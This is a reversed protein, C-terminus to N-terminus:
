RFPDGGIEPAARRGFQYGFGWSVETTTIPDDFMLDSEPVPIHTEGCGGLFRHRFGFRMTLPLSKLDAVLISIDIVLGLKSAEPSSWLDGSRVVHRKAGIHFFCLGGGFELFTTRSHCILHRFGIEFAHVRNTSLLEVTKWASYGNTYDYESDWTKSTLCDFEFTLKVKDSVPQFLYFGIGHPHRLGEDKTWDKLGIAGIEPSLRGALAFPGSLMVIIQLYAVFRVM